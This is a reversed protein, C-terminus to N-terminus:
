WHGFIRSCFERLVEKMGNLEGNIEAMAMFLEIM